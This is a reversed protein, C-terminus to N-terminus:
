QGWVATRPRLRRYASAITSRCHSVFMRQSRGRYCSIREVNYTKDPWRNDPEPIADLVTLHIRGDDGVSLESGTEDLHAAVGRYAVDLAM